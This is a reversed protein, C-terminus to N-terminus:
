LYLVTLYQVLLQFGMPVSGGISNIRINICKVQDSYNDNIYQIDEAIFAGNIGNDMGDINGIHKYILM